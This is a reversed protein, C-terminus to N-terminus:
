LFDTRFIWQLSQHQLQLQLELVEAVQHLSSVRQLLGQHHFLTFASPSPSSLPYFPQIADGVWYIRTQTLGPTPSPCPLRSHYLGQPWLTDSMVSCSFQVSSFDWWFAWNPQDDSITCRCPLHNLDIIPRSSLPPRKAQCGMHPGEKHSLRMMHLQHGLILTRFDSLPIQGSKPKMWVPVHDSGRYQIPWISEWSDEGIGCNLLMLEEASLNRQLEVRM